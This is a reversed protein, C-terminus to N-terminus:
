AVRLSTTDQLVRALPTATELSTYILNKWTDYNLTEYLTTEDGALVAYAHQMAEVALDLCKLADRSNKVNGFGRFEWTNLQDHKNVFNYKNGQGILTSIYQNRRLTKWRTRVTRPARGVHQALYEVMAAQFKEGYKHQVDPLSLHIHFSCKKDIRHNIGFVSGSAAKFEDFTLGGTTRFEFGRVSADSGVELTSPLVFRSRFFETPEQRYNYGSAPYFALAQERMKRRIHKAQQRSVYGLRIALKLNTVGKAELCEWLANPKFWEPKKDWYRTWRYPDGSWSKVVSNLDQTHRARNYERPADRRYSAMSFDASRQTELEFGCRVLERARALSARRFVRTRRATATSARKTM